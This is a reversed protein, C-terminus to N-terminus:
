SDAIQVLNAQSLLGEVIAINELEERGGTASGDDGRSAGVIVFIAFIVHIQEPHL